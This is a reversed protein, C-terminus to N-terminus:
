AVETGEMAGSERLKALAQVEIQRARERTVGISAGIEDLTHPHGGELGFRLALVQRERSHLTDLAMEIEQRLIHREAQESPSPLSEDPLVDGLSSGEETVAADLSTPRRMAGLALSVKETLKSNVDLASAIEVPNTLRHGLRHEVVRVLLISIQEYLHTVPLDLGLRERLFESLVVRSIDPVAGLRQSQLSAFLRSMDEMMVDADDGRPADPLQDFASQALQSACVELGLLAIEAANPMRGLRQELADITLQVAIEAANPAGSEFLPLAARRVRRLDVHLQANIGQPLSKAPHGM